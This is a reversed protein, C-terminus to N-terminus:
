PSWYTGPIPLYDEDIEPSVFYTGPLTPSPQPYTTDERPPGGPYNIPAGRQSQRWRRRRGQGWDQWNAPRYNRDFNNGGGGGGPSGAIADAGRFGISPDGGGGGGPGGGGGGGGGGRGGGRLDANIQSTLYEMLARESRRGEAEQALRDMEQQMMGPMLDAIDMRRQSFGELRDQLDQLLNEKAYREALNGERRASSRNMQDLSAATGITGFANEGFAGALATGAGAESQPLGVPFSEDPTPNVNFGPGLENPVGEPVGGLMQQYQGLQGQLQSTIQQLPFKPVNGAEKQFGGYASTAAQVARLYDQNSALEARDVANRQPATQLRVNRRATQTRKSRRAV